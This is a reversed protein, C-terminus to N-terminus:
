RKPKGGFAATSWVEIPCSPLWTSSSVKWGSYRGYGLYNGGGMSYNERHEISDDSVSWVFSALTDYVNIPEVPGREAIYADAEAKTLFQRSDDRHWPSGCGKWYCGRDSRIDTELHVSVNWRGKGPGLHETPKFAAAAKRLQAFSERKGRGFGLVVTRATRGGWYDSQPESESVHFTAVIVRDAGAAEMAARLEAETVLQCRPVEDFAVANEEARKMSRREGDVVKAAAQEIADLRERIAPDLFCRGDNAICNYVLGGPDRPEGRGAILEGAAAAIENRSPAETAESYQYNYAATNAIAAAEAIDLIEDLRALNLRVAHAVISAFEHTDYGIVSM